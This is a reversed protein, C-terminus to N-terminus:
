LGGSRSSLLRGATTIRVQKTRGGMWTEVVSQEGLHDVHRTVPSKSGDAREKLGPLPVSGGGAVLALTDM